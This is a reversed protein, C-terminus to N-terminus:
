GYASFFMAGLRGIHLGDVFFIYLEQVGREGM